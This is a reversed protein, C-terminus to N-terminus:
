FNVHFIEKAAMGAIYTVGVAIGIIMLNLLIRRRTNMGSIFSLIISIAISIVAGVAFSVFVSKAGLFVPVIPLLAAILYFGGVFFAARWPRSVGEKDDSSKGLFKAKGAEIKKVESESSTAAFAGAGMSVAGAVAVTLGALLVSSAAEFAAFFGSVAGLIEVLGDNFGFLIDRVLSPDILGKKRGLIKDEHELEDRLIHELSKQLETGQYEEWVNLYKRIGYVEISELVLTIFWGGFLFACFVILELKLRRLGDLALSRTNFFDEWFVVHREEVDILAQLLEKLSESRAVGHLRKYLALDFREDLILTRALKKDYTM